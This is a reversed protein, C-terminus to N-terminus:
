NLVVKKLAKGSPTTVLISYVGATQNELNLTLTEGEFSVNQVMRGMMDYVTATCTGAKIGSLQLHVIGESPNPAITVLEDALM